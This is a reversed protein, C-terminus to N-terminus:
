KELAGKLLNWYAMAPVHGTYTTPRIEITDNLFIQVRYNRNPLKKLVIKLQNDHLTFKLSEVIPDPLNAFEDVEKKEDQVPVNSTFTVNGFPPEPSDDDDPLFRKSYGLDPAPEIHVVKAKVHAIKEEVKEAVFKGKDDRALRKSALVERELKGQRDETNRPRGRNKLQSGESDNRSVM